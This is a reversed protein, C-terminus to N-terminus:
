LNNRRVITIVCGRIEEKSVPGFYRSDTGEDRKDALVFCEGPGLTLPYSVDSVYAPTPYFVNTEALTHGNVIAHDKSIEVTDGEKAIVRSIFLQKEGGSAPTAKEIVIVDQAEVDTDLRYFVVLDGMDLRPYMDNTPMHTVGIIQFFLVWLIVLVAVLRLVFRQYKRVSRESKVVEEVTRAGEAEEAAKEAEAKAIEEPSPEEKRAPAGPEWPQMKYQSPGPKAQAGQSQGIDDTQEEM